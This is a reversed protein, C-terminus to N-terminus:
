NNRQHALTLLRSKAYQKELYGKFFYTLPNLVGSLSLLITSTMTIQMQFLDIVLPLNCVLFSVVVLICTGISSKEKKMAERTRTKNIRLATNDLNFLKLSRLIMLYLVWTYVVLILVIGVTFVGATVYADVTTIKDPIKHEQLFEAITLCVTLLIGLVWTLLLYKVLRKRKLHWLRHQLPLKIAFFREIGIVAVFSMSVTLSFDLIAIILFLKNDYQLEKGNTCNQTIVTLVVFLISNVLDAIALNLLVIEFDTAKKIKRAILKIELGNLLIAISAITYSFALFLTTPQLSLSFEHQFITSSTNDM